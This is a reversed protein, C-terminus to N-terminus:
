NFFFVVTFQWKPVNLHNHICRSPIAPMTSWPSYFCWQQLRCGTAGPYPKIAVLPSRQPQHPVHLPRPYLSIALFLYLIWKPVFFGVQAAWLREHRSRSSYKSLSLYGSEAGAWSHSLEDAWCSLALGIAVSSVVLIDHSQIIIETVHRFEKRIKKQNRLEKKKM